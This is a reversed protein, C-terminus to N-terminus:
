KNATTNENITGRINELTTNLASQLDLLGAKYNYEDSLVEVQAKQLDQEANRVDLLDRTGAKYGEEALSLARRALGANLKKVDLTTRTKELTMVTRRIEIEAGQLAQKLSNETQQVQNEYEAIQVRTQSQPVLPDLRLGLTISFMGSRQPWKTGLDSFWPDKFPDGSFTPDASYAFSLTPYLESRTLRVVNKLQGVAERLGRIDYRNNVYKAILLEADKQSIDILEAEITGSLEPRASIEVGITQNFAMLAADYGSQLEDLVPKLNALSVQASLYTYEDVLGNQYNVKTQDLRQQATKIADVQLAIRKQIVLLSYFQKKVDRELNARAKELSTKGSEYDLVTQRIGYFMQMTLTLQASLRVGVAWQPLDIAPTTIVSNYVGGGGPDAFNPIFSSPIQQTANMRSLTASATMVPIFRNWVTSMTRQKGILKLRETEIGLNNHLALAVATDVDVVPRGTATTEITNQASLNVAAILLLLAAHAFVRYKGQPRTM